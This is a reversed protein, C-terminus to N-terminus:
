IEKSEELKLKMCCMQKFHKIVKASIVQKFENQIVLRRKYSIFYLDNQINIHSKHALSM